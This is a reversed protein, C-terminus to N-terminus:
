AKLMRGVKLEVEALEAPIEACLLGDKDAVFEYGYHIEKEGEEVVAKIPMKVKVTDAKAM